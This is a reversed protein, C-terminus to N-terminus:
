PSLAKRADRRKPWPSFGWLPARLTTAIATMLSAGPYDPRPLSAGQTISGAAFIRQTEEPDGSDLAQELAQASFLPAEWAQPEGGVECWQDDAFVLSRVLSGDRWHGYVGLQSGEDVAYFAVVDGTIKSLAQLEPAESLDPGEAWDPMEDSKGWRDVLAFAHQTPDFALVKMPSNKGTEQRIRAIEQDLLEVGGEPVRAWVVGDCEM